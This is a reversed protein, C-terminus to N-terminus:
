PTAPMSSNWINSHVKWSGDENKWINIYKGKEVTGEKGYTMSYKGEEILNDENGYLATTEERFETIGFQVYERNLASIAASGTVTDANPVFVKADRTFYSDLVAIDGTVHANTFQLNKDEIVKRIAALDFKSAPEHRSCAGALLVSLAIAITVFSKNM